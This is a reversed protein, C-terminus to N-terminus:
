NSKPFFIGPMRGKSGVDSKDGSYHIISSWDSATGTPTISFSLSYNEPVNTTEYAAVKSLPGNLDNARGFPSGSIPTMRLSDISGLAAGYGFTSESLFLTGTGFDRDGTVVKMIDLTNNLFLFVEKGFAVVQVNTIQNM